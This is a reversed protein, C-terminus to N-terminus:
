YFYFDSILGGTLKFKVKKAKEGIVLATTEESVNIPSFLFIKGFFSSVYPAHEKLDQCLYDSFNANLIVEELFAFATLRENLRAIDGSRLFNESLNGGNQTSFKIDKKLKLLTNYKQTLIIASQTPTIYDGREIFSPAGSVNFLYVSQKEGNVTVALLNEHKQVIADSIYRENLCVATNGYQNFISIKYYGDLSVLVFLDSFVREHLINKCVPLPKQLFTPVFLLAGDIFFLKVLKNKHLTTDNPSSLLLSSELLHDDTPIFQLFLPFDKDNVNFTQLNGNTLGIKIGNAMLVCETSSIVLANM